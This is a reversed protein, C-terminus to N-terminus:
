RGGKKTKASKAKPQKFTVSVTKSVSEGNDARYSVRASVKLTKKKKLSKKAAASLAIRVSYSGAKPAAVRASRLSAGTASIQGADPVKVKLTAVAGTVADLKSVVVSPAVPDPSAPVNGPGLFSVSGISPPALGVVSGQCANGGCVKPDADPPPKSPSSGGGLIALYADSANPDIDSALIGESTNFYVKTGDASNDIYGADYPERGPPSVLRVGEGKTWRYVDSYGGDTDQATLSQDTWFFVQSGDDSVGRGGQFPALENSAFLDEGSSNHALFSAPAVPSPPADADPKGIQKLGGDRTWMFVSSGTDAPSDALPARSMFVVGGPIVRTGRLSSSHVYTDILGGREPLGINTIDEVALPGAVFRTRGEAVDREYLKYGSSPADQTLREPTVFYTRNGDQSSMVWDIKINPNGANGTSGNGTPSGDVVEGQSVRVPAATGIRMYVDREDDTDGPELSEHTVFFVRDHDPTAWRYEPESGVGLVPDDPDGNDSADSIAITKEAGPTLVRMFVDKAGGDNDGPIGDVSSFIVSSGDAALANAGLAYEGVASTTGGLHSDAMPNDNNDVSVRVPAQGPEGVYVGLGAGDNFALADLNESASGFNSGGPGFTMNETTGQADIHYLGADAGDVSPLTGSYIMRTGDASLAVVYTLLQPGNLWNTPGVAWPTGGRPLGYTYVISRGDAPMGAMPVTRTRAVATSMDKSAGIAFVGISSSDAPSIQEYGWEAASAPSAAAGLAATAALAILAIRRQTLRRCAALLGLDAPSTTGAQARQPMCTDKAPTPQNSPPTTM